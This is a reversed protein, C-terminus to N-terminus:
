RDETAEESPEDPEATPDSQLLRLIAGLGSMGSEDDEETADESPPRKPRRRLPPQERPPKSALEMLENIEAAGVGSEFLEARVVAETKREVGVIPGGPATAVDRTVPPRIRNDFLALEVNYGATSVIVRYGETDIALLRWGDEAGFRDDVRYRGVEPRQQDDMVNRNEIIARADGNMAYIGRLSMKKLKVGIDPRVDQSVVISHYSPPGRDASSPREVVTPAKPTEAAGAGASEGTADAVEPEVPDSWPLGDLSFLNRSSLEALRRSRAARDSRRDVSSLSPLPEISEASAGSPLPRILSWAALGVGIVALALAARVSWTVVGGTSGPVPKTAVSRAAAPPVPGVTM